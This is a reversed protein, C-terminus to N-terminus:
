KQAPKESMINKGAAGKAIMESRKDASFLVMEGDIENAGQDKIQEKGEEDRFFTVKYRFIFQFSSSKIQEFNDLMESM